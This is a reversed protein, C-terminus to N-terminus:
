RWAPAGILFIWDVSRVAGSKHLFTGRATYKPLLLLDYTIRVFDSIRTDVCMCKECYRSTTQAFSILFSHPSLHVGRKLSIKESAMPEDARDKISVYVKADTDVLDLKM